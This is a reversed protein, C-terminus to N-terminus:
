LKPPSTPSKIKPDGGIHRKWEESITMKEMKSTTEWGRKFEEEDKRWRELDRALFDASWYGCDKPAIMPVLHGIGELVIESVRGAKVGGSGGVGTGTIDLKQKRSEPRSLDSTGGFIYLASPRLHPLNKFVAAPEPRYFPYIDITSPDLDPHTQSNSTINGNADKGEFNPRVFMFLEQSKSTMLTVPKGVGRPINSDDAEQSDAADDPYHATSLERLGYELWLDLVRPDWTQYFKNRKFSAVAQARSPWLDRRFTSFRAVNSEPRILNSPSTADHIVPDILVLSSLLRPHIYALQTRHNLNAPIVLALTAFSM